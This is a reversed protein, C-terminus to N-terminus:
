REIDSKEKTFRKMARDVAAALNTEDEFLSSQGALRAELIKALKSWDSKPLDLTGLHM